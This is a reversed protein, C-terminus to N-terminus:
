NISANERKKNIAKWWIINEEACDLLFFKFFLRMKMSKVFSGLVLTLLHSEVQEKFYIFLYIFVEFLRDYVLCNFTEINMHSAEIPSTNIPLAMRIIKHNRLFNPYMLSFTFSFIITHM